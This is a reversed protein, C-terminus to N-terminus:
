PERNNDTREQVAKRHAKLDHDTIRLVFLLMAATVWSTLIWSFSSIVSSSEAVVRILSTLLTACLLGSFAATRVRWVFNVWAAAITAGVISTCTILQSVNPQMALLLAQLLLNIVVLIASAKLPYDYLGEGTHKFTAIKLGHGLADIIISGFKLPLM